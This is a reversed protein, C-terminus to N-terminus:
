LIRRKTCHQFGWLYTDSYFGLRALFNCMVFSKIWSKCGSYLVLKGIEFIQIYLVYVLVKSRRKEYVNDNISSELSMKQPVWPPVLVSFDIWKLLFLWIKLGLGLFFQRYFTRIVVFFRCFSSFLINLPCACGCM